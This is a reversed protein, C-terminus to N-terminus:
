LADGAAASLDIDVAQRVSVAVTAGTAPCVERGSNEEAVGVDTLLSDASRRM